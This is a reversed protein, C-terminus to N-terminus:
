AISINRAQENIWEINITRTNAPLKIGSVMSPWELFIITRPQQILDSWGLKELDNAGGDLRYADIHIMQDFLEHGTIEYEKQIVFTPSTIDEGIKFVKAIEKVFATKGAGLDGELLVVQAGSMLELHKLFEVAFENLQEISEIRKM